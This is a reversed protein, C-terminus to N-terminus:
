KRIKISPLKMAKVCSTDVREVSGEELFERMIIQLCDEFFSHAGPYIVHLSRSLHRATETGWRPPTVPDYMGSLLLVPIDVKVPAAFNEPLKSRPWFDCCAMQTRVREDGFFTGKTESPIDKPDIRDIDEACTVCLLLGYSLGKRYARESMVVFQAIPTYNGLFAEHVYQPITVRLYPSYLMARVSESFASLTLKVPVQEGTAPHKVETNRPSKELRELVTWFEEELNPFAERCAPESDCQEFLSKIADQAGRAHYLPNTFSMSAVGQLISTRVTEPHRRMYILAVRTGYSGGILNIKEYGLAQRVENFDDVASPTSYQTLDYKQNLEELCSRFMEPNFMNEFYGQLDEDSGTLLCQLNHNGGTGRQDILVIDRDQRMWSKTFLRSMKAAAQGPGGAFFFVPDPKPDPGTAHLIILDLQLMRGSSKERNEYVSYFGSSIKSGSQEEYRTKLILRSDGTQSKEQDQATQVATSSLASLSFTAFLFGFTIIITKQKKRMPSSIGSDSFRHLNFAQVHEM